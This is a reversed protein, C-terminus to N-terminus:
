PPPLIITYHRAPKAEALRPNLVNGTPAQRLFDRAAARAEADPAPKGERQCFALVEADSVSVTPAIVKAIYRDIMSKAIFRPLLRTQLAALEDPSPNRTLSALLQQLDRRAAASDPAIEADTAWEMLLMRNVISDLAQRAALLFARRETFQPKDALGALEKLLTERDIQEAPDLTAVVAPLLASFDTPQDEAFTTRAALLALALCVVRATV